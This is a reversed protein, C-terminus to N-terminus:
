GLDKQSDETAMTGLEGGLLSVWALGETWFSGLHHPARVLCQGGGPMQIRICLLSHAGPLSFRTGFPYEVHSASSLPAAQRPIGSHSPCTSLLSM